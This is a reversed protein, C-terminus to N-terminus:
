CNPACAVRVSVWTLSGSAMDSSGYGASDGAEPSRVGRISETPVASVHVYGCVSVCTCMCVFYINVFVFDLLVSCWPSLRIIETVWSASARSSNLAKFVLWLLM